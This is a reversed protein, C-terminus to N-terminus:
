YSKKVHAGNCGVFPFKYSIEFELGCRIETEVNRDAQALEVKELEQLSISVLVYMGLQREFNIKM